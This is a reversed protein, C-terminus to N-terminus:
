LSSTPRAHARASSSPFPAPQYRRGRVWQPLYIGNKDTDVQNNIAHLPLLLSISALFHAGMNLPAKM